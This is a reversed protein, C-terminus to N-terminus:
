IFLFQSTEEFRKILAMKRRSKVFVIEPPKTTSLFEVLLRDRIAITMFVILMIYFFKSNSVPVNILVCLCVSSSSLAPQHKHIFLLFYHFFFILLITLMRCLLLQFFYSKQSDVFISTPLFCSRLSACLSEPLFLM